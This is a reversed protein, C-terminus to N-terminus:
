EATIVSNVDIALIERNFEDVVNFTRLRHGHRLAASMFDM